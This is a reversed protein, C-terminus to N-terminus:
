AERERGAESSIWFEVVGDCWKEETRDRADALAWGRGAHKSHLAPPALFNQGIVQFHTITEGWTQRM